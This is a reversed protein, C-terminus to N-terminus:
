RFFTAGILNVAMEHEIAISLLEEAREAVMRTDRLLLHHMGYGFLQIAISNPDSTRRAAVLLEDARSVTSLYGLTILIHILINPANQAYFARYYHSPGLGSLAVAREFHERAERFDGAAFRCI